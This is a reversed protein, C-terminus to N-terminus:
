DAARRAVTRAEQDDCPGNRNPRPKTRRVPSTLSTGPLTRAHGDVHGSPHHCQRSWALNEGGRRRLFPEASGIQLELVAPQLVELADVAPPPDIGENTVSCAPAHGPRRPTGPDRGPEIMGRGGDGKTRCQRAHVIVIKISPQRLGASAQYRETARQPRASRPRERGPEVVRGLGGPPWALNQSMELLHEGVPETFRFPHKVNAIRRDREATDRGILKPQREDFAVSRKREPLQDRPHLNAQFAPPPTPWLEVRRTASPGPAMDREPHQGNGIDRGAEDNVVNLAMEILERNRKAAARARRGVSASGTNTM